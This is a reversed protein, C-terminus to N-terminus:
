RGGVVALGAFVALGVAWTYYAFYHFGRTRLLRVFIWIAAVGFVMASASAIVLPAIVESPASAFEPLSEKPLLAELLYSDDDGM